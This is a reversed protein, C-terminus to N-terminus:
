VSLLCVELLLVSICCLLLDPRILLLDCFRSFLHLHLPWLVPMSHFLARVPLLLTTGCVFLLVMWKSSNSLLLLYASCGLHILMSLVLPLCVRVCFYFAYVLYLDIKLQVLLHVGEHICGLLDLLFWLFNSSPVQSDEIDNPPCFFSSLYRRVV